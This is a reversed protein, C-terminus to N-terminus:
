NAARKLWSGQRGTNLPILITKRRKKGKARESLKNSPGGVIGGIRQGSFPPAKMGLGVAGKEGDVMEYTGGEPRDTQGGEKGV